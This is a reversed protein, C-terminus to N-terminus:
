VMRMWFKCTAYFPNTTGVYIKNIEYTRQGLRLWSFLCSWSWIWVESESWWLWQDNCWRYTSSWNETYQNWDCDKWLRKQVTFYLLFLFNYLWQMSRVYMMKKKLRQTSTLLYSLISHFVFKGNDKYYNVRRTIVSTM